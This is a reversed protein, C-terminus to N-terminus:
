TAALFPEDMQATKLLQTAPLAQNRGGRKARYLAQDALEILEYFSERASDTTSVEAKSAYGASLTFNVTRGDSLRVSEQSAKLVVSQAFRAADKEGSNRMLVCFEEGGYRGSVDSIRASSAILRAAYALTVDGGSHGYTDNISKFFDIDFMIVSYSESQKQTDIKEAIEFFARRNYLGTLFDRRSNEEIERRQQDQAISLFAISSAVVAIATALLLGVPTNGTSGLPPSSGDSFFTSMARVVLGASLALCIFGSIILSPNRNGEIKRFIILGGRGLIYALAASTTFIAAQKTIDFFYVSLVGIMGCMSSYIVAKYPPDFSFVKAQAILGFTAGALALFNSMLFTFERPIYGTYFYLIYGFGVATM